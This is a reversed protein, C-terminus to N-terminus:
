ALPFGTEKELLAFIPDKLDRHCVIVGPNLRHAKGYSLVEGTKAVYIGCNSEELIVQVGATDWEGTPGFCPFLDAEGEAVACFKLAAGKKRIETINLAKMFAQGRPKEHFGRSFAILEKGPGSHSIPVGNKWAGSGKVGHYLTKDMPDYIAGYTSHSKEIFGVCVAFEKEGRVFYKTGDLPDVIFYSESDVELPGEESVVPFGLSGLKEILFQSVALDAKTVPSGDAKNMPKRYEPDMFYGALLEGAEITMQNAKAIIEQNLM